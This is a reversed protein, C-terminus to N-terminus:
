HRRAVTNCVRKITVSPDQKVTEVLKSKIESKEILTDEESHTHQAENQVIIRANEDELDFTNTKFSGPM